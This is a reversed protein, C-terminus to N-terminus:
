ILGVYVLILLMGLVLRYFVFPIMGIREILRLFAHICLYATLGSVVAGLTITGWAVSEESMLQLAKYGGSLSIIPIAMLFSFRAASSRDFGLALAATITIGSRSTGPILALVQAAGILFASKWSMEKITLSGRHRWDVWGLLLGFVITTTAIVAISRLHLEIYEAALLGVAATPFTALVIFWLLRSEPNTDAGQFTTKFWAHLLLALDKKFYLLVALLSGVHVAVDFALGQDEWGLIASPLILHASSSIPLFETLGQIIALWLAQVLDM